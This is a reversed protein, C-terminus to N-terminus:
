CTELPRLEAMRNEIGVGKTDDQGHLDISYDIV